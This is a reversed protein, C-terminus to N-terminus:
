STKLYLKKEEELRGYSGRRPHIIFKHSTKVYRTASLVQTVLCNHLHCMVPCIDHKCAWHTSTMPERERQPLIMISHPTLPLTWGHRANWISCPFLCVCNSLMISAVHDTAPTNLHLDCWLIDTIIMYYCELCWFMAFTGIGPIRLPRLCNMALVDPYGHLKCDTKTPCSFCPRCLTCFVNILWFRVLWIIRKEGM